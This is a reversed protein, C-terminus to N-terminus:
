NLPGDSGEFNRFAYVGNHVTEAEGVIVGHM